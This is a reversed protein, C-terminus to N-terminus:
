QRTYGCPQRGPCDKMECLHTGDGFRQEFVKIVDEMITVGVLSLVCMFSFFLVCMLLTSFLLEGSPAESHM